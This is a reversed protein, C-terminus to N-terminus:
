ALRNRNAYICGTNALYVAGEERAINRLRLTDESLLHCNYRQLHDTWYSTEQENIHHYGYQGPLANTMLIIRGCSLSALLNELHDQHIHEVVEQCHVLDVKCNVPGKALDQLITPYIAMDVNEQLGDVAIVKLGNKHFFASSYGIGSGIDLVSELSFREIMYRWCRPAFTFPDGELVNGGLHPDIANTILQLGTYEM